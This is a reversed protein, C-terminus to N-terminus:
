EWVSGVGATWPDDDDVVVRREPPGDSDQERGAAIVDDRLRGAGRGRHVRDLAVGRICHEHVDAKAVVVGERDAAQQRTGTGPQRDQQCRGVSAVVRLPDAAAAGAPEHALRAQV